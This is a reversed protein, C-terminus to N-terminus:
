PAVARWTPINNDYVLWVGGNARITLATNGPCAIQNSSASGTRHGLVVANGSIEQLLLMQRNAAGGSVAFGTLTSGSSNATLRLTGISSPIALDDTNGTSLTAATSTGVSWRSLFTVGAAFTSVSGVDLTGITMAGGVNLAGAITSNATVSLNTLTSNSSNLPATGNRIGAEIANVEDQLDNVDAPQIVDGTNKTTFTKVAGPFSAAM